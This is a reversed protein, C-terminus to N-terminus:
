NTPSKESKKWNKMNFDFSYYVITKRHEKRQTSKFIIDEYYKKLNQYFVSIYQPDFTFGKLKSQNRSIDLNTLWIGDPVSQSISYLINAFDTKEKALKNYINIKLTVEDKMREAEKIKAKLMDIQRKAVRYKTREVLLQQKRQELKKTEIHLYMLYAFELILAIVPIALYILGEKPASFSPAKFGPRKIRVKTKKKDPNLNIKIM